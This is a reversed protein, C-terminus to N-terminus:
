REARKPPETLNKMLVLADEIPNRYYRRRRGIQEYGAGTYLGRAAENSARVDLIACLKGKERAWKEARRLLRRGIGRGRFAAHVALNYIHLEDAAGVACMYGILVGDCLAVLSVSWDEGLGDLFASQAWPDGFSQLEIDHVADIDEGRMPRIVLKMKQAGVM